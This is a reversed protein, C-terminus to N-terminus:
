IARKIQERHSQRKLQPNVELHARLKTQRERIKVRAAKTAQDDLALAELRKAERIQREYYRQQQQLQYGRPDPRHVLPQSFGPLYIGISCRCNPHFVGAARADDVTGAVPESGADSVTHTTAGSQSLVKGAWADCIPCARPGPQIRVLDQGSEALTDLHGEIMAQGSGSRVAMEVYSELKWNRGGKDTFGTIGQGLLRNLTSQSAQRRTGAGMIVDGVTAGVAERYADMVTRLIKPTLGTVRTTVDAAILRVARAQAPPLQIGQAFDDLDAVALAQGHRYAKTITADVQAALERDLGRLDRNLTARVFQLEALKQEAWRPSDGGGRLREAIIRLIRLEATTVIEVTEFALRAGDDPSAAM